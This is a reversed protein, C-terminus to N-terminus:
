NMRGTYAKTGSDNVKQNFFKNAAQNWPENWPRPQGLIQVVWFKLKNEKGNVSCNTGWAGGHGFWKDSTSATLGLSYKGPCGKPRQNTALINKVTEEKLIRVGNEGKGEFMLMKYFKLLDNGTSWLGAGASPFVGSGNHPLPMQGTCATWRAKKNKGLRYLSISRSLQEDTPNFTTDKMGLPDLVREKLFVDFKKGTVVEVVAAGIDIGTNSYQSRTGPEFLLPCAAATIATVRLPCSPWGLRSKIPTEFPFGGTHSMVHRITLVNKAPTLLDVGDKQHTVVKLHKFEPLYKSVPDDLSIRGEEVLIAICTGCFGKTQSCIMFTRDMSMPIKKEVNAWGICNVEQRGQDYFVSIAGPCEGKEVFPMVADYAFKTGSDTVKPIVEDALAFSGMVVSILFFLNIKM